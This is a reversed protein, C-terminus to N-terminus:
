SPVEENISVVVPPESTVLGLGDLCDTQSHYAEGSDAIVRHNAAKLRWRWGGNKDRYVEATNSM